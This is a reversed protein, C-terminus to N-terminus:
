FKFFYTTHEGAKLAEKVRNSVNIGSFYAGQLYGYHITDLASGAFYLRGSVPELLEEVINEPVGPGYAEYAGMFLPDNSWTSVIIDIPDMIDKEIYIKRLIDMIENMTAEKNQNAVRQAIMGTLQVFIIKEIGKVMFFVPYYGKEESAYGIFLQDTETENWFSEEFVLFIKLYHIMTVYNIYKVVNQPLEPIFRVANQDQISAQLVGMSFTSIVYSACYRSEDDVTVCVCKELTKIQNVKTNLKLRSTNKFDKALCNVVYSFGKHDTVLYDISNSKANRLFASYPDNRYSLVLGLEEPGVGFCYDVINWEILKDISSRLTWSGDTLASRVSVDINDTTKAMDEAQEKAQGFVKERTRYTGSESRDLTKGNKDYVEKFLYEPTESGAPGNGNTDCKEWERWLPHLSRDDKDLGHIWNAGLEIIRNEDYRLLRVRGGIRDGAELVIFDTIGNVFLTRAAAVGSMGAGLILVDTYTVNPNMATDCWRSQVLAPLVAVVLLHLVQM